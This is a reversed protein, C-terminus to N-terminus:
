RIMIDDDFADDAVFSFDSFVYCTVSGSTVRSLSKLNISRHNGTSLAGSWGAGILVDVWDVLDGWATGM